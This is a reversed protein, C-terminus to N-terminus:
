TNTQNEKLMNYALSAHEVAMKTCHLIDEKEKDYRDIMKITDNIFQCASELNRIIEYKEEKIMKTVEESIGNTLVTM